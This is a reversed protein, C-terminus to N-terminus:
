RREVWWLMMTAALLFLAPPAIAAAFPPWTHLVGLSSFLANLMHFVVGVMVGGFIQLSVGGMRSHAYGFPLALAMMVLAAAPYFFKKWLAIEYRGTNQNNSSLHRLYTVLSILSMREPAVMLVSIIEPSLASTWRMEAEREVWAGPVDRLQEVADAGHEGLVTRVVDTLLWTGGDGQARGDVFEGARADLVYHLRNKEDFQYIRVDELRADPTASRINVFAQGDRVWIGSTFERAVVNHIAKVRLEQATREAVPAVTEGLLLAAVAFAGAVKFLILLFASTSMGSARLVTIESHRAFNSLAYLAGILVAIPMLEYIRGPLRLGVYWFAHSVGFQGRGVDKLSEITDFFAYLALLALLVLFISFYLERALYKEHIKM